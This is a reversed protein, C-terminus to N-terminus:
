HVVSLTTELVLFQSLSDSGLAKNLSDWPGAHSETCDLTDFVTM